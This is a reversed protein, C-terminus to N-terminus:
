SMERTEGGGGETESVTHEFSTNSFHTFVFYLASVFTKTNPVFVYTHPIKV